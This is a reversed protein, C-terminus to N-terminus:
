LLLAIERVAACALATSVGSPDYHPALEVIDAAVINAGKLSLLAALLEKFSVGGVEPTGTGPFASPDLVDLDISLYVPRSGIVRMADPVADLTFEHLSTHGEAAWAYEEATGSRVGFQWIAGDGLFSHARRMVASHTLEEGLYEARLDTHADFHVVALDPYKEWAARIAPLSILHEGGIMLTKKSDKLIKATLEGILMLSKETNGIPIDIDGLDCIGADELDAKQYPSYTEIGFSEGRMAQPAFRAGPRYSATGDFPAGFLVIKADDYEATCSLFRFDRMAVGRVSPPIGGCAAPPIKKNMGM